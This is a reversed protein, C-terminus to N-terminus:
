ALRGDRMRLTRHARAAVEADHTVVLVAVEGAGVLADM